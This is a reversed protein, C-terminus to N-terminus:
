KLGLGLRPGLSKVLDLMADPWNGRHALYALVLILDPPGGGLNNVFEVLSEALSGLERKEGMWRLMFRVPDVFCPASLSFEEWDMLVLKRNVIRANWPVFDGHAVCCLFGETPKHSELYARVAQWDEQLTDWFHESISRHHATKDKLEQWSRLYLTDWKHPGPAGNVIPSYIAYRANGWSGQTILRPFAFTQIDLEDLHMVGQVERDLSKQSLTDQTVRAFAIAQESADLLLVCAKERKEQPPFYFIPRLRGIALPGEVEGLWGEWDFAELRPVGETYGM